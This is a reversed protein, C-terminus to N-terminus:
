FNYYHSTKYVFCFLFKVNKKGRAKAMIQDTCYNRKSNMQRQILTRISEYKAQQDLKNKLGTTQYLCQFVSSEIGLKENTLFKIRRFVSTRIANILMAKLTQHLTSNEGYYIPIIMNNMPQLKDNNMGQNFRFDSGINDPVSLQYDSGTNDPILDNNEYTTKMKEATIEVADDNVLVDHDRVHKGIGVLTQIANDALSTDEGVNSYVDEGYLLNLNKQFTIKKESVKKLARPSYKSKNSHKTSSVISSITSPSSNDKEKSRGM